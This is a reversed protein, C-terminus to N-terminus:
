RPGSGDPQTLARMPVQRLVLAVALAVLTVPITAVFVMHLADAYAGVVAARQAAPLLDVAAPTTVQTPDVGTAAAARALNPALQDAYVTGFVAVGFASGMSRFFTVGSTAVGLDRREATNQVITTLIQMSLGIGLGLVVMAGSIGWTTSHQDLRSVWTIGVAMVIAGAIPFVRYRGTRSVVNGATLSGVLLGLVLPLLRLGSSTASVGQCYQLYTPLFTMCGLFAFGVIFSLVMSVSFVNRRFLRPPLIPEAARREAVVFCVLSAVGAAALGLFVPSTWGYQVGGWSM